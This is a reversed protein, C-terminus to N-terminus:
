PLASFNGLVRELAGTELGPRNEVFLALCAADARLVLFIRVRDFVWCLRRSQIGHGHLGESAQLVRSMVQEVQNPRLWDGYCHSAMTRDPLRAGWAALGRQPRLQRLFSQIAKSM